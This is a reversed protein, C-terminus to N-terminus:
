YCFGCSSSLCFVVCFVKIYNDNSKEAQLIYQEILKVLQYKNYKRIKDFSCFYGNALCIHLICSDAVKITSKTILL